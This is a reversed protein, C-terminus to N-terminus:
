AHWTLVLVRFILLSYPSIEGFFEGAIFSAGVFFFLLLRLHFELSQAENVDPYLLCQILHPLHPVEHINAEPHCCNECM